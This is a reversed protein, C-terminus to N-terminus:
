RFTTELTAACRKTAVGAVLIRARVGGSAERSRWRWSEAYNEGIFKVDGTQLPM